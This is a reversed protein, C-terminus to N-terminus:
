YEYNSVYRYLKKRRNKIRRLAIKVLQEIRAKSLNFIKGVEIYTKEVENDLGFKCKLIAIERADISEVSQLLKDVSNKAEIQKAFDESNKDAFFQEFTSDKDDSFVQDDKSIVIKAYGPIEEIFDKSFGTIFAIEASTPDRKLKDKLLIFTKKVKKIHFFIEVPIFITDYNNHIARILNAKIRITAHTSFKTNRNLDFTEIAQMLAINGDQILDALPVSTNRAFRRAVSVVLKLNHKILMERAEQDGAKYATFLARERERTLVPYQGAENLYATLM